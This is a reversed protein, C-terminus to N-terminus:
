VIDAREPTKTKRCVDLVFVLLSANDITHSFCTTVAKFLRPWMSHQNIQWVLSIPRKILECKRAKPGGASGGAGLPNQIFIHYSNTRSLSSGFFVGLLLIKLSWSKEFIRIIRNQILIELDRDTVTHHNSLFDMSVRFAANQSIQKKQLDPNWMTIFPNILGYVSLGCIMRM